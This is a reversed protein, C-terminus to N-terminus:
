RYGRYARMRACMRVGSLNTFLAAFGCWRCGVSYNCFRSVLVVQGNPVRLLDTRGHITHLLM